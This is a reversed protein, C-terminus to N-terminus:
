RTAVVGLADRVQEARRAVLNHATAFGLKTACRLSRPCRDIWTVDFLGADTSQELEAMADDVQGAVAFFETLIRPLVTGLRRSAPMAAAAAALLALTDHAPEGSALARAVEAVAWASVSPAATPGHLGDLLYRLEPAWLSVRARFVIGGVSPDRGQPRGDFWRRASTFDRLLAYARIIELRAHPIDPESRLATEFVVVALEPLGSELLMRGQFEQAEPNDPALAIARRCAAASATIDGAVLRVTAFALQAEPDGPASAAAWEALRTAEEGNGAEYFWRRSCARAYTSLIAVDAPSREHAQQLLDIARGVNVAGSRRLEARARLYLDVAM